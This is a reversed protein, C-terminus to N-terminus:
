KIEGVTKKAYLCIERGIGLMSLSQYIQRKLDNLGASNLNKELNKRRQHCQRGLDDNGVYNDNMLLFIDIPFTSEAMM